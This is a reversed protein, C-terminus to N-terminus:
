RYGDIFLFVNFINTTSISSFIFIFVAFHAIRLLAVRAVKQLALITSQAFVGQHERILQAQGVKSPYIFFNIFLKLLYKNM